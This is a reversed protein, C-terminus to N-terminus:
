WLGASRNAQYIEVAHDDNNWAPVTHITYSRLATRLREHRLAQEVLAPGDPSKSRTDGDAPVAHHYAIPVKDEAM